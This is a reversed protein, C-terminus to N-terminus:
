LSYQRGIYRHTEGGVWERPASPPPLAELMRIQRRIWRLRRTVIADVRHSNVGVPALVLVRRDPEVFIGITRQRRTRRLKYSLAEGNTVLERLEDVLFMM